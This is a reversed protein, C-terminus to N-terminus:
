TGSVDDIGKAKAQINGQIKTLCIQCICFVHEWGKLKFEGVLGPNGCQGCYGLFTRMHELM